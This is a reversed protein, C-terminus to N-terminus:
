QTSKTSKRYNFHMKKITCLHYIISVQWISREGKQAGRERERKMRKRQELQNRGKDQEKDKGRSERCTEMAKLVM